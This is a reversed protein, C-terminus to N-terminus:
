EVKMVQEFLNLMSKCILSLAKRGKGSAQSIDRYLWLDNFPAEYSGRLKYAVEKDFRLNQLLMQYEFCDSYEIGRGGCFLLPLELCGIGTDKFGDVDGAVMCLIRIDIGDAYGLVRSVCVPIILGDCWSKGGIEAERVLKLFGAGYLPHEFSNFRAMTDLVVKDELFSFFLSGIHTYRVMWFASVKFDAAWSVDINGYDTKFNSFSREPTVNSPVFLGKKGRLDYQHYGYSAVSFKGVLLNQKAVYAKIEDVCDTRVDDSAYEVLNCCELFSEVSMKEGTDFFISGAGAKVAVGYQFWPKNPCVMDTKSRIHKKFNFIPINDELALYYDGNFLNDLSFWTESISSYVDSDSVGNVPVAVAGGFYGMLEDILTVKRLGNLNYTLCDLNLSVGEILRREVLAIYLCVSFTCGYFLEDSLNDRLTFTDNGFSYVSYNCPLDSLDLNYIQPCLDSVLSLVRRFVSEDRLAEQETVWDLIQVSSDYVGPVYDRLLVGDFDKCQGDKYLRLVLRCRIDCDLAHLTVGYVTYGRELLNRMDSKSVYEETNDFTDWVRYGGDEYSTVLFM